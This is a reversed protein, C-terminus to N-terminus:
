EEYSVYFNNYWSIVYLKIVKATARQVAISDNVKDVWRHNSM